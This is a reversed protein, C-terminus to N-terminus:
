VFEDITRGGQMVDSVSLEGSRTAERDASDVSEDRDWQAQLEGSESGDGTDAQTQQDSVDADGLSLGQQDFM